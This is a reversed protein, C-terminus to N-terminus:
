GRAASRVRRGVREHDEVLDVRVGALELV